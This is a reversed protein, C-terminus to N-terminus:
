CHGHAPHHTRCPARAGCLRQLRDCGSSRQPLPLVIPHADSAVGIAVGMGINTRTKEGLAFIPMFLM